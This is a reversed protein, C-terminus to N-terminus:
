IKMRLSITKMLISSMLQSMMMMVVTMIIKMLPNISDTHVQVLGVIVEGIEGTQHTFLLLITTIVPVTRM